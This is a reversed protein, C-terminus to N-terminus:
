AFTIQYQAAAAKVFALAPVAQEVPLHEVIVAAGEGFNRCVTFLAEFDMIGQGPPAETIHVVLDQQVIVDKVHITPAYYPGLTDWLKQVVTGTNYVSALDGFMNVPDFNAKIWPSAVASLIEHIHDATDLTTLVHCELALIVGTEEAWPVVQRLSDILRERTAASHNAAAPGYFATPHLSGCGSIITEAGLDRAVGFAARLRELDARRTGPDPHVMNPNYGTTQVIRIGAQGLVDRVRRAPAGALVAPPPQFHTVIASVGLSRLYGALGPTLAEPDRPVLGGSLGLRMNIPTGHQM